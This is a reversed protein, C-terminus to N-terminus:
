KRSKILDTFYAVIFIIIAISFPQLKFSRWVRCTLADREDVVLMCGVVFTVCGVLPSDPPDPTPLYPLFTPYFPYPSTPPCWTAPLCLGGGGSIM